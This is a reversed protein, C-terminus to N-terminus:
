KMKGCRRKPTKWGQNKKEYDIPSRRVIAIKCGQWLKRVVLNVKKNEIANIQPDSYFHVVHDFGKPKLGDCRLM